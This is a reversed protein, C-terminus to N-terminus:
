LESFLYRLALICLISMIVLEIHKVIFILWIGIVMGMLVSLVYKKNTM